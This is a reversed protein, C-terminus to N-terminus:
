VSTTGSLVCVCRFRYIKVDPLLVVVALHTAVSWLKRSIVNVGDIWWSGRLVYVGNDVFEKYDGGWVDADEINM